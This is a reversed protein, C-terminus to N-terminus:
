LLEARGPVYVGYVYWRSQFIEIIEQITRNEQEESTLKYEVDLQAWGSSIQPRWEVIRMGKLYPHQISKIDNLFYEQFQNNSASAVINDKITGNFTITIRQVKTTIELKDNYQSLYFIGLILLLILVGTYVWYKRELKMGRKM